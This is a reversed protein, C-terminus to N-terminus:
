YFYISLHGIEDSINERFIKAILKRILVHSVVIICVIIELFVEVYKVLRCCKFVEKCGSLFEFELTRLRGTILLFCCSSHPNRYIAAYVHFLRGSYKHFNVM